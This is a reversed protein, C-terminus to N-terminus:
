VLDQMIKAQQHPHSFSLYVTQPKDSDPPQYSIALAPRTSSGHELQGATVSGLAEAPLFIYWWGLATPSNQALWLLHTPQILVAIVREGTAFKQYYGRQEVVYRSKGGVAVQGSARLGIKEFAAIPPAPNPLPQPSAQAQFRLYGQRKAQGLFYLSSLPLLSLFLGMPWGGPLLGVLALLPLLSLGVVLWGALSSGL